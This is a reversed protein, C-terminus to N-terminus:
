ATCSKVRAPDVANVTLAFVGPEVLMLRAETLPKEPVTLKDTAVSGDVPSDHLRVGDLKVRLTEAVVEFKDQMPDAPTYVTVTAAALLMRVWVRVTVNVTWSTRTTAEVLPTVTSGEAPPVVVIMM